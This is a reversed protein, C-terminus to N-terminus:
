VMISKFLVRIRRPNVELENSFGFFPSKSVEERLHIFGSDDEEYPNEDAM